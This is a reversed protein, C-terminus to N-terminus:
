SFNLFCLLILGRQILLGLSLTKKEEQSFTMELEENDSELDSEQIQSLSEDTPGILSEKIPTLSMTKSVFNTRDPGTVQFHM